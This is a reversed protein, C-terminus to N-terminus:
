RSLKLGSRIRNKEILSLMDILLMIDSSCYTNQNTLFIDNQDNYEHEKKPHSPAIGLSGDPQPGHFNTTPDQNVVMFVCCCRHRCQHLSRQKLNGVAAYEAPGNTM